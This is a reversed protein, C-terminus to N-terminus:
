EPLTPLLMPSNPDFGPPLADQFLPVPLDGYGNEPQRTIRAALDRPWAQVDLVEGDYSLTVVQGYYRLEGFLHDTALDRDPISYTMRLQESGGAWDWPLSIWRSAVWDAHEPHDALGLYNNACLNLVPEHELVGIRAAQPSTIVREGKFLGASRIEDLQSALHQKIQGFM